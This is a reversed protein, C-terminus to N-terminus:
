IISYKISKRVWFVDIEERFSRLLKSTLLFIKTKYENNPSIKSQNYKKIHLKAKKKVIFNKKM